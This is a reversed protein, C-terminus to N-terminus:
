GAPEFTWPGLHLIKGNESWTQLHGKVESDWSVRTGAPWTISGVRFPRALTAESIQTLIRSKEDVYLCSHILPVRLEGFTMEQFIGVNLTHPLYVSDPNEALSSGAPVPLEGIKNNKGLTCHTM